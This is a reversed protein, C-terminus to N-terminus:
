KKLYICICTIDDVVDGENKIWLDWSKKAIKECSEKIKKPGYAHIIDGVEKTELFEWVGDSAVVIFEDKDTITREFVEPEESVGVMHAIFDGLSRSMALGPFPRGRVFVRHPVDGELLKVDGGSNLIRKKEKPLNPKHDNCLDTSKMKKNTTNTGIIARSDGVCATYVKNANRDIVVVTATTGSLACDFEAEENCEAVLQDHTQKFSTKLAKPIDKFEEMYKFLYNHLKKTCFDSVDHGYPGHGDFVALVVYQEQM